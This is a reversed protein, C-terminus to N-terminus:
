PKKLAYLAKFIGVLVSAVSMVAFIVRYNKYIFKYVVIRIPKKRRYDEIEQVITFYNNGLRLHQGIGKFFALTQKNSFHSCIVGKARLEHVDEERDMLMALVSLYSSVVYGDSEMSPVNAAEAAELAAMNVLHCAAVDNLFMPSLSLEGFLPKKQVDINDAFWRAKSGTLAFGIQALDVASSSMSSVDSSCQWISKQKEPTMGQILTSRLLGLLHPPRCSDGPYV